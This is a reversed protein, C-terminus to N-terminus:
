SVDGSSCSVCIESATVSLRIVWQWNCYTVCIGNIDRLVATVAADRNKCYFKILTEDITICSDISLRFVCWFASIGQFNDKCTKRNSTRSDWRWLYWCQHLSFKLIYSTDWKTYLTVLTVNLANQADAQHSNHWGYQNKFWLILVKLGARCVM